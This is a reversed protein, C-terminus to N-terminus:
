IHIMLPSKFADIGSKKLRGILRCALRYEVLRGKFGVGKSFATISPWYRIEYRTVKKM